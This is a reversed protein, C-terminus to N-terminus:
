VLPGVPGFTGNDADALRRGGEMCCVKLSAMACAAEEPFYAPVSPTKEPRYTHHSGHSVM